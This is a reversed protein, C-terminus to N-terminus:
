VLARFNGVFDLGKGLHHTCSDKLLDENALTTRAILLHLLAGPLRLFVLLAICQNQDLLAMGAHQFGQQKAREAGSGIPQGCDLQTLQPLWQNPQRDKQDCHLVYMLYRLYQQRIPQLSECAPKTM